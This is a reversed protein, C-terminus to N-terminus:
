KCVCLDCSVGQGMHVGQQGLARLLNVAFLASASENFDCSCVFGTCKPVNYIYFPGVCVGNVDVCECVASLCM